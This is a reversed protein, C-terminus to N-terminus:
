PHALAYSLALMGGWSQGLMHVAGLDLRTRLNEVEDVFRHATWLSDDDPRDSRGGGLQDWMVVQLRPNALSGFVRMLESNGGPGGHAVLLTVQASGYREFYVRHGAEDIELMGSAAAKPVEVQKMAASLFM